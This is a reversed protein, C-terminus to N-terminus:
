LEEGMELTATVISTQTPSERELTIILYDWHTLVFDILSHPLDVIQNTDAQVRVNWLLQCKWTDIATAVTDFEIWSWTRADAYSAWTIATADRTIYAKMFSKNDASWTVRLALVDRTNSISNITDKIHVVLVPYNATNVSKTTPTAVSVYSIWERTWWESTIDVCGFRMEVETWDTNECYFWASLAPSDITLETNQWLFQVTHVLKQNVYFFYDWVWRWQYQIDYLTWYALNAITLWANSLDIEEKKKEWWDDLIVAYLVWDELQFFAWFTSNNLLGFKRKWTASPSPMFWATSYLHWRNAQYRPHRKSELQSYEWINAWSKVSLASDVSTIRTSTSVEAWDEYKLWQTDPVDYTFLWHFLSHDIIVKPRGWADNTIDSNVWNWWPANRVELFWNEFSRNLIAQPTLTTDSM